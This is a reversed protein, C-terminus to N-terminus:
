NPNTKWQLNEQIGQATQEPIIDLSKLKQKGRYFVVGGVLAVAGGVLAYCVWWELYPRTLWELLHVLMFLLLIGSATLLSIGFGLMMGTDKARDIDKRVDHKLLSFQQEILKLADDFIGSVLGSLSPDNARAAPFLDKGAKATTVDNAM